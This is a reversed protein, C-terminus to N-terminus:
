LGSPRDLQVFADGGVTVLKPTAHVKSGGSVPALLEKQAEVINVGAFAPAIAGGFREWIAISRWLFRKEWPPMHLATSWGVPTFMAEDLLREIQGRNYPQGHGFPTADVRSWISRRNPVVMLVRGEPRLIRWIERLFPRVGEVMELGHVVLLRDVSASPLPLAHVDVLVSAIPGGRPWVLAGQAAPMLATISQADERFLGLYPTAFGLGVVNLRSSQQWHERLRNGLRRRVVTGLPTSYFDRLYKVDMHM